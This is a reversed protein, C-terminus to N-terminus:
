AGPGGPRRRVDAIKAALGDGTALARAQDTLAALGPIHLTEEFSEFGLAPSFDSGWHLDSPAFADILLDVFPVAAAHPPAPDIAYLGSLKVGVNKADALRLLPELRAAAETRSLGAAAPGPLGLHSFLFRCGPAAAIVPELLATAAPRANLSVIARCESLLHWVERPWRAFASATETDLLYAVIGVHGAALLSEVAGADPMSRADLYALSAIWPRTGALKRVYANNGPDIGDAEYCVILGGGIGHTKMFAEYADVESQTGLPSPGGFRGYGKRFLHLHSDIIM